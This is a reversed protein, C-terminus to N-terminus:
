STPYRICKIIEFAIHLQRRFFAIPVLLLFM